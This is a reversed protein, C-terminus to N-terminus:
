PIITIGARLNHAGVHARAPTGPLPPPKQGALACGPFPNAAFSRPAVKAGFARVAGNM